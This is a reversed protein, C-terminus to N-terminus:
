LSFVLLLLQTCSVTRRGAWKEEKASYNMLPPNLLENCYCSLLSEQRGPPTAAAAAAAAVAASYFFSAILSHFYSTAAAAAFSSVGLIRPLTRSSVEQCFKLSKSDKKSQRVARASAFTPTLMWNNMKFLQYNM